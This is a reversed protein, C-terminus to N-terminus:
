WVQSNKNGTKPKNPKADKIASCRVLSIPIRFTNPAETNLKHRIKDLSNITNTM